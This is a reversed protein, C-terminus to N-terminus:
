GRVWPRLTVAVLVLAMTLNILRSSQPDRMGRALSAGAALWGAHIIVIMVSLVGLKALMDAAPAVFIVTGAYVAGIALYAKPNAIALLLGAVFSPSAAGEANQLPPATAIQFALYFLYVTSVVGFIQAGHPIALILAFLGAAVLGLVAITGLVLGLAYPLTARFGFAAGMATVSITSPGPSGMIILSAVMLEMIHQWVGLM